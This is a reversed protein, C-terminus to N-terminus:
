PAPRGFRDIARLPTSADIVKSFSVRESVLNLGLLVAVVVWLPGSGLTAVASVGLMAGTVNVGTDGQMLKER